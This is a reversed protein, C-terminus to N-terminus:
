RGWILPKITSIGWHYQSPLSVLLTTHMNLKREPLNRGILSLLVSEYMEWHIFLAWLAFLQRRSILLVRGRHYRGSTKKRKINVHEVGIPREALQKRTRYWWSWSSDCDEQCSLFWTMYWLLIHHKQEIRCNKLHGINTEAPYSTEVRDTRARTLFLSPVCSWWM